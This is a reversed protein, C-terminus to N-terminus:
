GGVGEGWACGWGRGGAVGPNGGGGAWGWLKILSWTKKEGGRSGEECSGHQKRKEAKGRTPMWPGRLRRETREDGEASEGSKTKVAKEKESGGSEERGKEGGQGRSRAKQSPSGTGVWNAPDGRELTVSKARPPVPRCGGGKGGGV